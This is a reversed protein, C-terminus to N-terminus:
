GYVLKPLYGKVDLLVGTISIVHSIRDLVELGLERVVLSAESVDELVAPGTAELAFPAALVAKMRNSATAHIGAGAAELNRGRFARDEVLAGRRERGPEMGDEEHALTLVAHRRLFDLAVDADGVLARPAHGLLDPEQHALIGIGQAAHDLGVFGVVAALVLALAPAASRALRWYEANHLTASPDPGLRDLVHALIRKHRQHLGHRGRAGDDGRVLGVAVVLDLGQAIQMLRDLVRLAFVGTAVHMGVGDLAEPRLELTGNMPSEMGNGRLVQLFVKVLEREAVVM